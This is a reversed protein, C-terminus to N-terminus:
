IDANNIRFNRRSISKTISLHDSKKGRMTSKSRHLSVQCIVAYPTPTIQHSTLYLDFVLYQLVWCSWLLPTVHLYQSTRYLFHICIADHMLYCHNAACKSQTRIPQWDLIMSMLTNCTHWAFWVVKDMRVKEWGARKEPSPFAKLM